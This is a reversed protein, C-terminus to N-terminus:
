GRVELEVGLEVCWRGMLESTKPMRRGAEWDHIRGRSVGLRDALDVISVGLGIRRLRMSKGFVEMVDLGTREM